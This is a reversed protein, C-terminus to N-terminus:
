YGYMQLQSNIGMNIYNHILVKQLQSNIGM